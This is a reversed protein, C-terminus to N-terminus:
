TENKSVKDIFKKIFGLVYDTIVVQEKYREGTKLCHVNAILSFLEGAGLMLLIPFFFIQTIEPSMTVMKAFFGLGFLVFLLSLKYFGGRIMRDSTVDEKVKVSAMLGTIYDLGLLFVYALVVEKELGSQHLLFGVVVIVSNIIVKEVFDM